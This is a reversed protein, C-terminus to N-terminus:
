RAPPIFGYKVIIDDVEGSMYYDVFAKELGEPEGNTLLGEERIIPWTGNVVNEETPDVGELVLLKVKDSAVSFGIFGIGNPDGAVLDHMAQTSTPTAKLTTYKEIGTYEQIQKRTASAEDRGYVSIAGPTGGVESWDKITGSFIGALQETTLTNIPNAANVIIGVGESCVVFRKVDPYATKEEADLDRSALGVDIVGEGIQQIGVGTGGGEITFTVDPYAATIGDCIEQTMPAPTTAGGILVEGELGEFAELATATSEEPTETGSTEDSEGGGCGALSFALVVCLLLAMWKKSM